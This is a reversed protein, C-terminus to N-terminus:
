NLTRGIKEMEEGLVEWSHEANQKSMTGLDLEPTRGVQAELFCHVLPHDSRTKWLIRDGKERGLGETSFGM